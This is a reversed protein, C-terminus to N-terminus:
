NYQLSIEKKTPWDLLRMQEKSILSQVAKFTIKRNGKFLLNSFSIYGESDRYKQLPKEDPGILNKLITQAFQVSGHFYRWGLQSIAAKGLAISVNLYARSMSSNAYLLSFRMCGRLGKYEEKVKGKSDFIIKPLERYEKTSGSFKRWGLANMRDKGIITLITEYAKRMKGSFYKESIRLYEENGHLDLTVLKNDSSLIKKIEIFEDASIGLHKWELQAALEKDLIVSALSYVRSSAGKYYKKAFLVQGDVKKYKERIKGNKDLIKGKFSDFDETSGLFIKWGLSQFDKSSLVAKVNSYVIRMNSTEIKESFQRSGEMGRYNFLAEENLINKLAHFQDVTGFFIKWNLSNFTLKDISQSVQVFATRMYGNFHDSSFEIYGAMGKYIPKVRGNEDLLAKTIKSPNLHNTYKWGLEKFQMSTLHTKAYQRARELNENFYKKSFDQHGSFGSFRIIVDPPPPLSQIFQLVEQTESNKWDFSIFDTLHTRLIFLTREQGIYGKTLLLAKKLDSIRMALIKPNDAIISVSDDQSSTNKLEEFILRLHFPHFNLFLHFHKSIIMKKLKKGVAQEIIDLNDKLLHLNLQPIIESHNMLIQYVEFPQFDKKLLTLISELRSANLISFNRFRNTIFELAKEIGFERELIKLVLSHEKSKAKYLYSIHQKLLNKTKKEGLTNKLFQISREMNQVDGRSFNLLSREIIQNSAKKGINEDFLFIRQRFDEFIIRKSVTKSQQLIKNTRREGIREVLFDEIQQRELAITQRTRRQKQDRLSQGNQIKLQSVAKECTQSKTKLISLCFVCILIIKIQKLKM